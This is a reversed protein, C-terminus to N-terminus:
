SPPTMETLRPPMTTSWRHWVVQQTPTAEGAANEALATIPVSSMLMLGALVSATARRIVIRGNPRVDQKANQKKM